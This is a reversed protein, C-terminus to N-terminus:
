ESVSITKISWECCVMYQLDLYLYCSTLLSTVYDWITIVYRQPYIHTEQGVVTVSM